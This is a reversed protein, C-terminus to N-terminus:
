VSQEGVVIKMGCEYCEIGLRHCRTTQLVLKRRAPYVWVEVQEKPFLQLPAVLAMGTRSMDKFYIGYQEGRYQLIGKHRLFYRQYSRRCDPLNPVPGQRSFFVRGEEPLRATLQMQAWLQEVDEPAHDLDLM